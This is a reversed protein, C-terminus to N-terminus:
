RKCSAGAIKERGGTMLEIEDDRIGDARRVMGVVSCAIRKLEAESATRLHVAWSGGVDWMRVQVSEGYLGQHYSFLRNGSSDFSLKTGIYRDGALLPDAAIPHALLPSAKSSEVVVLGDEVRWSARWHEELRSVAFMPLLWPVNAPRLRQQSEGAVKVQSSLPCGSATQTLSALDLIYFEPDNLKIAIAPLNSVFAATGPMVGFTIEPRIKAIPLVREEASPMARWLLNLPIEGTPQGSQGKGTSVIFCAGDATPSAVGKALRLAFSTGDDYAAYSPTPEFTPRDYTPMPKIGDIHTKDTLERASLRYTDPAKRAGWNAITINLGGAAFEFVPFAAKTIKDPLRDWLTNEEATGDKDSKRSLFYVSGGKFAVPGLGTVFGAAPLLQPQLSKGKPLKYSKVSHAGSKDFTIVELVPNGDAEDKSDSLLAIIQSATPDVGAASYKGYWVPVRPLLKRLDGIADEHQKEAREVGFPFPPLATSHLNSLLLALSRAFEGKPTKNAFDRARDVAEASSNADDYKRTLAFAFVLAGFIFALTLTVVMFIYRQRMAEDQARKRGEHWDHGRSLVVALVDHKLSLLRPSTQPEGRLLPTSGGTLAILKGRLDGRLKLRKGKDELNEITEVLSVVTGGGQRSVLSYLLSYWRQRVDRNTAGTSLVGRRLYDQMIGESRGSETWLKLTIVRRANALREYLAACVVQLGPTVAAPFSALLDDAIAQPLSPEYSFGYVPGGQDTVAHSPTEILRILTDRDRFSRLFFAQVLGRPNRSGDKLSSGPEDDSTGRRDILQDDSLALEERLRGYYETRLTIILRADINRVCIDEILRFFSAAATNSGREKVSRTLVEEAQDIILILKCPLLMCLESLAELVASGTQESTQTLASDLRRGLRNRTLEDVLPGDDECTLETANALVVPTDLAARLAWAIEAVPNSTCRIVSESSALLLSRRRTDAKLAPILGARLFSSKGCGSSGHLLLLKTNFGHLLNACMRVEGTREGFLLVDAERFYDLRRYPLEPWAERLRKLM